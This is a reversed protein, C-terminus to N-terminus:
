FWILFKFFFIVNMVYCFFKFWGKIVIVNVVILNIVGDLDIVILRFIFFLRYKSEIFM